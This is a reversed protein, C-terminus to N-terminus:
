ASRARRMRAFLKRLEETWLVLSAVGVIPLLDAPAIPMTHFLANLPPWYLVGAQLVVSLSLGGLLWRNRLIGFQLASRTASQCNLVNFWQCVALVTFTETRVLEYPVGIAQRWVFWGFTAAVAMPTLLAIRGLMAGDLLRDDRPVPARAMEDGDPPDMVLNVTLTSETVINIWLIQVAALPLQFGGLLALLLVLVEDVSTVFLFLIVKKLNGYVVRGQEVAGVLTAFNDDTIVIKAASKAVETGTIGMAVGVDARALAPADNVGDGTMAVVDGRSQLAEVIRLKQAPHVRAFVAIRDLGDLLEADNLRELEAGDVARDGDRAIGLERAIALGTLKHDGTVMIPRIGAARCEAVAVKVEERPPDIQGILGLLTARGALADFGGALADPGGAATLADDAVRAVALVRLARGALDEAADRAAQLATKGDAVCLRLVAEPAGKIFVRGAHLTAMLKTDSDFPLEAERGCQQRLARVEIGAKGAAVLLAAETPDGLVTWQDGDDHPPVLEADSCLVAAQLLATVSADAADLPIGAESLAGLPAYGVGSVSIGRGGPLWLASVTMENRTLTGTKDSCIVTTSGLTEVASLRRIIAGRAAMRQMGVALAITMAVPLGEPVMSVMQSIAVMLVDAAPLGRLVGLSMVVVFLVLAAVVLYRGFQAIRLELPTKPEEADETMRAIGGVESHVGTATVVARARGATVYTGSFVMNRRDALGTAEPLAAADKSVPVSEGTLAAEAVQLQAEEILRADAGVADGAALLLLDGPVLERAAIAQERGDRLVRAQLASLRRLAAMSREARGEQYAGILANALVVAIIVVSDGWHGMGASLAAAVFLIYILPSKFQQLFVLLASRRPPEPLANPGHEGTRQAAASSSLGAEADSGLREIAASADLAHWPLVTTLAAAPVAALLMPLDMTYLPM